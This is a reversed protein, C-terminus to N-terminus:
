SRIFWGHYGFHRIYMQMRWVSDSDYRAIVEGRM